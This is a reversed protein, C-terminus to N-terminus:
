SKAQKAIQSFIRFINTFETFDFSQLHEMHDGFVAGFTAVDLGNQGGSTLTAQDCATAQVFDRDNGSLDYITSITNGNLEVRENVDLWIQLGVADTPTPGGGSPGHRGEIMQRNLPRVIDRALHLPM